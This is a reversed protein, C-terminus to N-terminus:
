FADFGRTAMGNDEASKMLKAHVLPLRDIKNNGFLLDRAKTSKKPNLECNRKM